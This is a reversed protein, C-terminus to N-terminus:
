CRALKMTSNLLKIWVLTSTPQLDLRAVIVHPLICDHLLEKSKDVIDQLLAWIRLLALELNHSILNVTLVQQQCYACMSQGPQLLLHEPHPAMAIGCIASARVRENTAPTVPRTHICQQTCWAVCRATHQQPLSWM